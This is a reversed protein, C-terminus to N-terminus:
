VFGFSTLALHLPEALPTNLDDFGLQAHTTRIPLLLITVFEAYFQGKFKAMLLGHRTTM